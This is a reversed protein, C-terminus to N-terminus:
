GREYRGNIVKEMNKPGVLWAFDARWDTATGILLPCGACYAFYQDWWGLDQRSKDENWRSRVNARTAESLVRVRPCGADAMHTHYAAVIQQFPISTREPMPGADFLDPAAVHKKAKKAPEQIV